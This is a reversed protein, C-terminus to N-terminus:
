PTVLIYSIRRNDRNCYGAHNLLTSPLTQFPKSPIILRPMVVYVTAQTNQKEKHMYLITLFHLAKEGM